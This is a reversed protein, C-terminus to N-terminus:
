GHTNRGRSIASAVPLLWTAVDGGATGTRAQGDVAFRRGIEALYLLAVARAAEGESVVGRLIESASAVLATGARRRAVDGNKLSPLFGHHLVDFGVPVGHAFREWDWVLCREGAIALNWATLDGHWAGIDLVPDLDDVAGLVAFLADRVVPDDVEAVAALQASRHEGDRWRGTTVGGVHAIELMARRRVRPDDVTGHQWVPLPSQVMVLTDNWDRVGILRPTVTHQLDAEELQRLAKAEADALRKTLPNTGVKAVALLGGDPRLVQIVPKRNARPPGLFVSIRVPQGLLDALMGEISHALDTGGVTIRGPLARGAGLRLLASVAGTTLRQRATIPRRAYRLASSALRREAPLLM